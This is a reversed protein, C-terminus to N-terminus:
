SRQTIVESNGFFDVADIDILFRRIIVNALITMDVTNMFIIIASTLSYIDCETHM